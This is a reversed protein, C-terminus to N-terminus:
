YNHAFVMQSIPKVMGDQGTEKEYIIMMLKRADKNNTIVIDHMINDSGTASKGVLINENNKLVKFTYQAANNEEPLIENGNQDVSKELIAVTMTGSEENAKVIRAVSAPTGVRIFDTGELNNYHSLYYYSSTNGSGSSGSKKLLLLIVLVIFIIIVIGLIYYMTTCSKSNKDEQAGGKLNVDKLNYKTALNEVNTAFSKSKNYTNDISAKTKNYSADVNSMTNGM